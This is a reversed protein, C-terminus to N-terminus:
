RVITFPIEVSNGSMMIRFFYVGSALVGDLEIKRVMEKNESQAIETHIVTGLISVIEYPMIQDQNLKARVTFTGTNPNPFLVITEEATEKSNVVVITTSASSCGDITTTLTYTGSAAPIAKYLVPNQVISGFGNPGKWKFSAGTSPNLVELLLDEGSNIPSNSTIDPLPPTPKVTVDVSGTRTCGFRSVTVSYRGGDTLAVPDKQATKGLYTFSQPGTWAYIVGDTSTDTVYLELKKGECLPSNYSVEMEGPLPVVVVSQTDKGICGTVTSTATVIYNAGDSMKSNNITVGPGTSGFGGNSSEWKYTETSTDAVTLRITQGECITPNDIMIEPDPNKHVIVDVTDAISSCGNLVSRSLYPGTHVDWKVNPISPNQTTSSYGGPGEWAYTVGPTSSNTTFSLTEGSCVPSNSTAVPKVPQPKIVVMETDSASCGGAEVKLIWAGAHSLQAKDITLTVGTDTKASNPFFWTRSPAQGPHTSKLKLTDGECVPSNTTIVPPSITDVVRLFLSDSGFGCTSTVIRLVYYGSDAYQVNNRFITDANASWNGPGSWLYQAGALSGPGAQFRVDSTPCVITGLNTSAMANIVSSQTISVTVTDSQACGNSLKAELIYDGSYTVQVNTITQNVGTASYGGGIKSWEYTPGGPTNTGSLQLDAGSCLPSNSVAVPKVPAPIITVSITDKTYCGQLDATVIYDGSYSTQLNTRPHSNQSTNSNYGGPGQWNYSVNPTSTNAFLWLTDDACVPSNSNGTVPAPTQGIVVTTTDKSDCNNQTVTVIYDGADGTTSNVIVPNQQTSNYSGPGTWSVNAGGSINGGILQLNDGSCLPGNNSAVPKPAAQRITVNTTDARTCGNLDATIIYSGSMASSMNVRSVNQGYELFSVPGTWIYNSGATSATTSLNLQANSCVPGNNSAVPKTPKPKILINNGNDYSTDIPMTAVIRIRFGTGTMNGPLGVPITGGTTATKTGINVPSAFSGASNSLQVTFTNGTVFTNTVGYSLTFSDEICHVTQTFPQIIFASTDPTFKTLFGDNGGGGHTNQSGSFAVGTDSETYGCMYVVGGPATAVGVGYDNYSGGYYTSWVKTGMITFISLTADFTANSPDSKTSRHAGSTAIGSTSATRGAMNLDGYEDFTLIGGYDTDGGGFYTGWIRQGTSDFRALVADYAGAISTQQANTTAIDTSSQSAGSIYVYNTDGVVIGGANEHLTGGYYTAWIRQGNVPNFKAILLEFYRNNNTTTPDFNKWYQAYTGSTGLSDSKYEGLVYVIGNSDTTVNTLFDDYTGGYYTGWQRVGNKNFKVLYGDYLASRSTQAVGSTTAIGTDSTTRGVMYVNNYVDCTLYTQFQENTREEGAGGYYTAWQRQGSSNLKVLFADSNGGGRATQHAGSSALTSSTDTVGSFFVDGEGNIKIANLIDRGYGGYYTTWVRVGAPTFKVAYGDIDGSFTDISAGSTAINTSSTTSGVMYVYGFTDVTVDYALDNGNGGMYSAWELSPDIVIPGNHEAVSFTITNGQLKYESALEMKTYAYYTYPAQETVQGYPTTVVIAGNVMKLDTAGDYQLQIDGPDGGPHIVFDYKLKGDYSYLVWDINDYINRYIIKRYSSVTVDDLGQTYYREVEGTADQAEPVVNTNAGILTVDLRYAAIRNVQPQEQQENLTNLKKNWQYHISGSGIFVTLPGAPLKYHIDNRLQQHQNKIQGKNEIFCMASKTAIVNESGAYIKNDPLVFCLSLLLIVSVCKHIVNVM